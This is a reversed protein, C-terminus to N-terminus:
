SNSNHVIEYIDNPELHVRIDFMASVRPTSLRKRM